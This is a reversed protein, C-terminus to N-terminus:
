GTVSGYSYLHDDVDEDFLDFLKRGTRIGFLTCGLAWLDCGIGVVGDLILEPSCYPQPIGVHEPPSAIEFSEGFDVLCAEDTIYKSDIKNFDIPYVLYDPANPESPHEGFGTM